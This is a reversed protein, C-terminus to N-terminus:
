IAERKVTPFMLRGLLRWLGNILQVICFYAIIAVTFSEFYRFTISGVSYAVQTIDPVSIASVLSTSLVVGVVQNGLAPFSIRIAQPLIIRTWKIFPSLGLADAAELQGPAIGEIGGRYIEIVFATSHLVLAILSALFPNLNLGTAALGFYLLYLLVLTPTNRNLEVYAWVLFRAWRVSSTRVAVLPAAAIFSIVVTLLSLEVTIWLGYGLGGLYPGLATLDFHYGGLNM